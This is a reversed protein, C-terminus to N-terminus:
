FVLDVGVSMIQYDGINTIQNEGTFYDVKLAASPHFDYRLSIGYGDFENAALVGQLGKGTAQLVPHNIGNLFGYDDPQKSEEAHVTIIYSDFRRGLALYWNENPADVSDQVGYNTYEFDILWDEYDVGFGAFWYLGDKKDWAVANTFNTIDSQTAGLSLAAEVGPQIAPFYSNADLSEAKMETTFAGSFVKWWDGSLTANVSMIDNLGLPVNGVGNLTINGDWSGYLVKTDLTYDGDALEFQSNLAIGEMTAFPFGTYVAKPLRSFNHAFGVKEYESQHFTPNALKGVNITHNDALQYSIYAWRAEVDFDNEGAAYLQIIASLGETLDATAQVAFLSESKFSIEGEEFEGFPTTGGDSNAQSARISAFGNLTIDAFSQPIYLLSLGITFFQLKKM